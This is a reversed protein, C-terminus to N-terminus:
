VGLECTVFQRELQAINKKSAIHDASTRYRRLSPILDIQVEKSVSCNGFSNGHTSGYSTWHM